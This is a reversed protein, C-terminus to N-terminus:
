VSKASQKENVFRKFHLSECGFNLLVGVKIGFVKLYNIVQNNWNPDMYPLAKLELLVLSEVLMDIRRKGIFNALYYIDIEKQTEVVLMNNQLEIALSRQYIIEPFGPGFHTHVKMASGIITETLEKFLIVTEAM